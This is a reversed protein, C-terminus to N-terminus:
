SSKRSMSGSNGEEEPTQPPNAAGRQPAGAGAEDIVDIAKDPLLRDNIHKVSLDVAAQIADDNYTVNHHAEYKTRLGRLIEVAEGITPEVM